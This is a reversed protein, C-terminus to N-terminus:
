NEGRYLRDFMDNESEDNSLPKFHAGFNFEAQTSKTSTKGARKVPPPAWTQRVADLASPEVIQIQKPVNGTRLPDATSQPRAVNASHLTTIAQDNAPTTVGDEPEIAPSGLTQPNSSASVPEIVAGPRLRKIGGNEGSLEVEIDPDYGYTVIQSWPHVPQEPTDICVRQDNVPMAARQAMWGVKDYRLKPLLYPRHGAIFILQQDDALAGVEGADLLPREVEGITRSGGHGGFHYPLSSSVRTETVHGTLKSIKERTLPDLAAFAVYIYANDLFGNYQGYVRSIDNLSQAVFLCKIGYGSALRVVDEFFSVKGLLPFEDLAMLLSHEKPRGDSDTEMHTTFATATLHFFLRVLPQLAKLDGPSVQVYVSVPLKACMLDSIRFDSGSIAYEVEDGAIWSLYSRVTMQVSKRGKEHASAYAKAAQAIHPHCIHTPLGDDKGNSKPNVIHRTAIMQAAVNDLDASLDRVTVLNKAETSATYLVHLILATLMDSGQKNWFDQHGSADGPEILIEVLRKIQGVAERGAGIECLPNFRATHPARPNFYLAPGYNRRLGATTAWLEAKPDLILSSQGWNLLSPVVIGRGKGSRTGGTVLMPRLDTTALFDASVRPIRELISERDLRGFIVGDQGILGAKALAKRDGWGRSRGRKHSGASAITGGRGEPSDFLRILMAGLAVGLMLAPVGMNLTTKHKPDQGWKKQWILFNWPPYIKAPAKARATAAAREAQRKQAKTMNSTDPAVAHTPKGVVFGWGLAPQYQYKLAVIQTAASLGIVAGVGLCAMRTRIGM